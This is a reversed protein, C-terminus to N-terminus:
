EQIEVPVAASAMEEISPPPAVESDGNLVLLEETSAEVEAQAVSAPALNEEEAVPEEDDKKPAEEKPKTIKKPETSGVM